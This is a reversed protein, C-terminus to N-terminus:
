HSLRYKDWCMVFKPLDLEDCIGNKITITIKDGSNSSAYEVIKARGKVYQYVELMKLTGRTRDTFIKEERNSPKPIYDYATKGNSDKFTVNVDTSKLSQIFHYNKNRAAIMLPTEGQTNVIDLNIGKLLHENAVGNVAGKWLAKIEEEREKIKREEEKKERMRAMDRQQQKWRQLVGPHKEQLLNLWQKTQKDGCNDFSKDIYEYPFIAAYEGCSKALAEFRNPIYKETFVRYMKEISMLANCTKVNKEPEWINAIKKEIHNVDNTDYDYFHHGMWDENAKAKKIRTKTDAYKNRANKRFNSGLNIWDSANHDKLAAEICNLALDRKTDAAFIDYMGEAEIFAKSYRELEKQYFRIRTDNYDDTHYKTHFSQNYAKHKGQTLTFFVGVYLLIYAGFLVIILTLVFKVIQRAGGVYKGPPATTVETMRNKPTVVISKATMDHLMKRKQSAYMVFPALIFILQPLMQTAPSPPPSMTYQMERVLRYLVFPLLSVFVRISAKPFSLNSGDDSYIEVGFLKGGITTRWKAISVAFYLWFILVPVWPYRESLLITLPFYLVIIDIVFALFRIWFSAYVINQKDIPSNSDINEM